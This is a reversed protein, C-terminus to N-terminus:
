GSGYGLYTVFKEHIIQFELDQLSICFFNTFYFDGYELRFFFCFFKIKVCSLIKKLISNYIIITHLYWPLHNLVMVSGGSYGTVFVANQWQEHFVPHSPTTLLSSGPTLFGSRVREDTKAPNTFSSTSCVKIM